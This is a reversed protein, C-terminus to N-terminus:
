MFYYLYAPAVAALKNRFKKLHTPVTVTVQDSCTINGIPVAIFQKNFDGPMVSYLTASAVCTHSSQIFQLSSILM